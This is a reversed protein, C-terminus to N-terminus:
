LNDIDTGHTAGPITTSAGGAQYSAEIFVDQSEPNNLGQPAITDTVSRVFDQPHRPEWCPKCVVLGDWQKRVESRRYSFDCRQCTVWYNGSKFGPNKTKM